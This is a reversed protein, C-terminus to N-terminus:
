VLCLFLMLGPEIQKLLFWVISNTQIAVNFQGIDVGDEDEGKITDMITSRIEGLYEPNNLLHKYFISPGIDGSIHFNDGKYMQLANKGNKEVDSKLDIIIDDLPTRQQVPYMQKKMGSVFSQASRSTFMASLTALYKVGSKELDHFSGINKRAEGYNISTGVRVVPAMTDVIRFFKGQEVIYTFLAKGKLLETKAKVKVYMGKDLLSQINQVSDEVSVDSGISMGLDWVLKGLAIAAESLVGDKSLFKSETSSRKSSLEFVEKYAEKIEELKRTKVRL